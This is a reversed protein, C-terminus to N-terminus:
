FSTNIERHLGMRDWLEDSLTSDDEQKDHHEDEIDTDDEGVRIMRYAYEFEKRNEAFDMVLKEMHEFGQVDEYSEYWKVSVASFTLGWVGNWDHVQWEKALDHEQVFKHMQYVAMVEDIQEKTKFAFAIVIDSRYGM